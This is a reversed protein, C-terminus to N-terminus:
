TKKIERKKLDGSRALRENTMESRLSLDQM